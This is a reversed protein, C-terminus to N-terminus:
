AIKNHHITHCSRCLTILNELINNTDDGDVHHVDLIRNYKKKCEDQTMGCEQCTYNDCKRRAERLEQVAKVTRGCSEGHIYSPHNIGVQIKNLEIFTKSAKEKRLCGCSNTTGKQLNDGRAIIENGCNCKCLWLTYSRYGNYAVETFKIVVLRGYRIGVRDKIKRM